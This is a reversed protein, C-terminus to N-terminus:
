PIIGMKKVLLLRIFQGPFCPPHQALVNYESWLGIKVAADDLLAPIAYRINEDIDPLCQKLSQFPPQYNLSSHERVNNYYYISGLSEDLLSKEGFFHLRFYTCSFVPRV